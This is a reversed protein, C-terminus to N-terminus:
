PPGLAYAIRGSAMSFTTGPYGYADHLAGADRSVVTYDEHSLGVFVGTSTGALSFDAGGRSRGARCANGFRAERSLRHGLAGVSLGTL